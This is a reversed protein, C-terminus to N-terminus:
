VVLSIIILCYSTFLSLHMYQLYHILLLFFCCSFPLVPLSTNRTFFTFHYKTKRLGHPSRPHNSQFMNVMKDRDHSLPHATPTGYQQAAQKERGDSSLLYMYLGGKVRGKSKFYYMEHAARHELANWNKCSFCSLLCLHLPTSGCARPLCLTEQSRPWKQVTHPGGQKAWGVAQPSQQQQVFEEPAAKRVRTAWCSSNGDEEAICCVDRTHSQTLGHWDDM